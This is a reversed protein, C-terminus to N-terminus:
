RHALLTAVAAVTAYGRWELAAAPSATEFDVTWGGDAEQLAALRALDAEIVEDTFLRRSPSGPRPSLDLPHLREDGTGGQVPVARGGARPSRAARRGRPSRARAAGGRGPVAALVDARLRPAPRGARRDRGPLLAHGGGALRTRRGRGPARRAPARARRGPLDDSAVVVGRRREDLDALVGRSRRGPLAFPAATRSRRGSSGTACSSRGAPPSRPRRPSSRWRTCPGVPQSTASRLDPELGWGYGGDPNSYADVAALAGAGDSDGLVALLRHRDLVRAHGAM